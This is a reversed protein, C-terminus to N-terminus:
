SGLPSLRITGRRCEFMFSPDVYRGSVRASIHIAAASHDTGSTGVIDGGGVGDGISVLISGLYSYSTRVGGGHDITVSKVGAVSGAFTVVGGAIATVESGFDMAYDVGWHGAYQGVPAFSRVVQGPPTGCPVALLLAIAVSIIKSLM